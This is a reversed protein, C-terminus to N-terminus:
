EGNFYGNDLLHKKFIQQQKKTEDDFNEALIKIQEAPDNVLDYIYQQGETFIYKIRDTRFAYKDKIAQGTYEIFIFDHLTETQGSIVPLLSQGQLKTSIQIELLDFITPMIDITSILTDIKKSKGAPLSMALPIHTLEDYIDHHSSRGHDYFQEGHDGMVIIVSNEALNADTLYKLLQGLDDDTQKVQGDYLAILYDLDKDTPRNSYLPERHVRTFDIDSKYGDTYLKDYPRQPLYPIHNDFYHVFLFFRNKSNNNLWRIVAKNILDNTRYYSIDFPENSDSFSELMIEATYDDYLDFGQSFGADATLRRNCCFGACCYQNDALVEALTYNDKKLKASIHKAGHQSPYKSTFVSGTAPMSWSSTAFTNTFYINESAFKDFVETTNRHYGSISCHDYRLTSISILIVNKKNKQGSEFYSQFEGPIYSAMTASIFLAIIALSIKKIECSLM